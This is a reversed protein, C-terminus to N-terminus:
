KDKALSQLTYFKHSSIEGYKFAGFTRSDASNERNDGLCYFENENLQISFNDTKGFGYVDEVIEGNIYLKNDKYEVHENPLGVVRKIINGSQGYGKIVVIDFRKIVSVDKSILSVGINGNYLTPEMSQGSVLVIKIGAVYLTCFAVLVICIPILWNALKARAKARKYRKAKEKERQELMARTIMDFENM